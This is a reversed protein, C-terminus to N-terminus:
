SINYFDLGNQYTLREVLEATQGRAEALVEIVRSIMRSDCRKGRTPEPALYPADTETLLLGDPV